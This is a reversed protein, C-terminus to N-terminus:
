LHSNTLLVSWTSINRILRPINTIANVHTDIHLSERECHFSYILIKAVNKEEMWSCIFVIWITFTGILFDSLMLKPNSFSVHAIPVSCMLHGIWNIEYKMLRYHFISLYNVGFVSNGLTSFINWRLCRKRLM